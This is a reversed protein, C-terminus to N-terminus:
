ESAKIDPWLLTWFILTIIVEWLLATMYIFSCWKWLWLPSSSDLAEQNIIEEANRTKTFQVLYAIAFSSFTIWTIWVGWVTFYMFDDFFEHHKVSRVDDAFWALTILLWLVLRVFM